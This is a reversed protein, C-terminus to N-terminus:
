RELFENLRAETIKRQEEAAIRLETEVSNGLRARCIALIEEPSKGSLSLVFIFRFKEEYLRNTEALEKSVGTPLTNEIRSNASYAELKHLPALQFWINEAAAFLNELLHFPRARTMRRAWESSGCCLRFVGEAEADPLENM